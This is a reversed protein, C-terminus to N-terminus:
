SAEPEVGAAEAAEQAGLSYEACKMWEHLSPKSLNESPEFALSPGARVSLRGLEIVGRRLLFIRPIKWLLKSANYGLGPHFPIIIAFIIEGERFVAFSLAM